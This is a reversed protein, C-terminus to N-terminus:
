FENLYYSANYVRCIQYIRATILRSYRWVASWQQPIEADTSMSAFGPGSKSVSGIGLQSIWSRMEFRIQNWSQSVQLLTSALNHTLSHGTEDQTPFSTIYKISRKKTFKNIVFSSSVGTIEWEIQFRTHQLM